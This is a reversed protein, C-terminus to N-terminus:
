TGEFGVFDDVRKEDREKNEGRSGQTNTGM